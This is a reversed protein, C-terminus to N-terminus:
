ESLGAARLRQVIWAQQKPPLPPNLPMSCDDQWHRGYEYTRDVLPQLDLTVDSDTDRLPIPIGPLPQSLPVPYIVRESRDSARCVCIMYPLAAATGLDERPFALVHEGGRLLDIEVLNAGGKLYEHQKRRYDKWGDGTKTAPSLLEIVTIMRGAAERIEVWRLKEEIVRMVVPDVVAVGGGDEGDEAM